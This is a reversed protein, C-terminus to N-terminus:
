KNLSFNYVKNSLLEQCIINDFSVQKLFQNEKKLNQFANKPNKGEAWDIIQCNEVDNDESDQTFGETTYFIYKKFQKTDTDM